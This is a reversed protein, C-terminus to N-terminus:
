AAERIVPLRHQARSNSEVIDLRIKRMKTKRYYEDPLQEIQIKKHM